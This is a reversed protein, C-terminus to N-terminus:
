WTSLSMISVCACDSAPLSLIDLPWFESRTFVSTWIQHRINCVILGKGSIYCSVYRVKCLYPWPWLWFQYGFIICMDDHLFSWIFHLFNHNCHGINWTAARLLNVCSDRSVAFDKLHVWPSSDRWYVAIGSFPNQKHFCQHQQRFSPFESCFELDYSNSYKVKFIWPWPWFRYGCKLGLTWNINTNWKTAIPDNKELYLCNSIESQLNSTLIM